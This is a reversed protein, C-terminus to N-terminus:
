SIGSVTISAVGGNKEQDVPTRYENYSHLRVQNPASVEFQRELLNEAFRSQVVSHRYPRPRRQCSQLGAEAMLRGALFRGVQEGRAKLAASLSRAGMSRRSQTHLQIAEVKLRERDPDVRDRQKLYDYYRSRNM